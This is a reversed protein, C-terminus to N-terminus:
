RRRPLLLRRAPERRPRPGAAEAVLATVLGYAAHPVLDALWDTVGWKRPDTARLLAMSTDSIAMASGALAAAAVPAPPRWGLGRALGYGAGVGVGVLIGNLAGLGSLRNQRKKEGGPIGVGAKKAAREVTKQPSSSAPRGRAAMDLYTVANLATTGAAGAAAGAAVSGLLSANTM